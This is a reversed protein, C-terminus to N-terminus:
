LFIYGTYTQLTTYQEGLPDVTIDASKESGSAEGTEDALVLSCSYGFSKKRFHDVTITINLTSSMLDEATDVQSYIGNSPTIVVGDERWSVATSFYKQTQTNNALEPHHCVLTVVDGYCPISSSTSITITAMTQANGTMISPGSCVEGWAHM